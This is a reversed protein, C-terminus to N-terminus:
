VTAHSFDGKFHRYVWIAIFVMVVASIGVITEIVAINKIYGVQSMAASLDVLAHLLIAAPYLWIRRAYVATWVVVSLSIQITIAFVREVSGVLFEYPQTSILSGAVATIQPITTGANILLSYVLNAIMSIGLLLVVETGGHGIGYSLADGVDWEDKQGEAPADGPEGIRTPKKRNDRQKLIHFAIFRASEEFVGAALCGYIVYIVPHQTMLPITGNVPRLVVMHLLQELIEAFLIFGAAGLVLPMVRMKFRKRFLIFLVAPLAFAFLMSFLMCLMSVIPVKM